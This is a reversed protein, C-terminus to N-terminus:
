VEVERKAKEERLIEKKDKEVERGSEEGRQMVKDKLVEFKNSPM